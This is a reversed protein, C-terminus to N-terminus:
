HFMISNDYMFQVLNIIVPNYLNTKSIDSINKAIFDIADRNLQMLPEGEYRNGKMKM